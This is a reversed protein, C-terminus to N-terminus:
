NFIDKKKLKNLSRGPVINDFYGLGHGFGFKKEGLNPNNNNTRSDDPLKDGLEIHGNWELLDATHDTFERYLQM